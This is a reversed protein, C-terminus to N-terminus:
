QLMIMCGILYVPFVSPRAGSTRIRLSVWEEQMINQNWKYVKKIFFIFDIINDHVKLGTCAVRHGTIDTPRGTVGQKSKDNQTMNHWNLNNWTMELWKKDNETIKTMLQWKLDNKDNKDKKTM